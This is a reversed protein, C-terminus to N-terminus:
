SFAYGEEDKVHRMRWGPLPEPSGWRIKRALEGTAGGLAPIPAGALEEWTPYSPRQNPGRAARTNMANNILRTAALDEERREREAPVELGMHLCMRAQAFAPAAFLATGLFILSAHLLRM